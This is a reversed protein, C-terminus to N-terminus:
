RCANYAFILKMGNDDVMRSSFGAKELIERTEDMREQPCKAMVLSVKRFAAKESLKALIGQGEEGNIKLIINHNQYTNLMKEFCESIDSGDEFVELRGENELHEQLNEEAMSRRELDAEYGYVKEVNMQKLFYLVSAGTHMGIDLVVDRKGNNVQYNYLQRGFVEYVDDFASKSGVKITREEITLSFKGDPLISIPNMVKGYVGYLAHGLVIREAAVGRHLLERVINFCEQINLVMIIIKDYKYRALENLQIIERGAYWGKERRDIFAKIYYKENISKEYQRFFKGMGYVIANEKKKDETHIATYSGYLGVYARKARETIDIDDPLRYKEKKDDSVEVEFRDSVGCHIGTGDLGINKVLSKYPLVCIGNAEIMHLSWYVDWIDGKGSINDFVMKECDNGWTALAHSKKEDGNLRKLINNDISFRKWKDKWTGWGWSSTRGCGYVDYCDEEVEVPDNFGGVCWVRENDKYKELCQEMFRIFNASPVCDDELIIAADHRELVYRIGSIISEAVGKNSEAIHLETPCFAIERIFHNVKEWEARHEEKVLGDQFIYLKKPLVTNQSLAKVVEKTHHSRNYTFLITAINM